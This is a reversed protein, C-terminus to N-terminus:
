IDNTIIKHNVNWNKPLHKCNTNEIFHQRWMEIFSQIDEINDMVLKGHNKQESKLKLISKFDDKTYDRGLFNKIEIKVEEVRSKPIKYKEGFMVVKFNSLLKRMEIESFPLKNHDVIMYKKSLQYKLKDAKREYIQHCSKCLVLVDHCNHSKYKEPLHKRYCSPIVHHKTLDNSSGCNVCINDLEYSAYPKNHNGLGKPNFNLKITLPNDKIKSALGRDLYWYARKEKCCFMLINDPSLVQCNGYIINSNNM